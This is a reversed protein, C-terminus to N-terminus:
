TLGEAAAVSLDAAPTGPRDPRVFVDLLFDPEAHAAIRVLGPHARAQGHVAEASRAHDPVPHRWHVLLLTGGPELAHVARELVDAAGAATFYYLLESLVVLDFAGDPWDDPLRRQEVRVHPARALRARARAVAREERDCALLADCRGALLASLVGVSCGPEFASRYRPEPLAALTLAYKRREYWREALRWPDDQEAYMGAFYAAPTAAGTPRGGAPGPPTTM